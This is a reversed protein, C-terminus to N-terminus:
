EVALAADTGLGTALATGAKLDVLATEDVQDFDIGGRAGPDLIRALQQIINLVRGGARAVLYVEDVLHVHQGPVTEIRQQFGEFLRRRVDLEQQRGGVRLFQRGRHQRATQLEVQFSSSTRLM